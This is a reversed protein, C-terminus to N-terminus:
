LRLSSLLYPILNLHPISIPLKFLLILPFLILIPPVGYSYPDPVYSYTLSDAPVLFYVLSSLIAYDM